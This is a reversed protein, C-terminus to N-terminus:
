PVCLSNKTGKFGCFFIIQIFVPMDFVGGPGRLLLGNFPYKDRGLQRLEMNLSGNVLVLCVFDETKDLVKFM